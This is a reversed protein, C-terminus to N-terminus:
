WPCPCSIPIMRAEYVLKVHRRFNPTGKFSMDCSLCVYKGLDHDEAPDDLAGAMMGGGDGDAEDGQSGGQGSGQLYGGGSGLPGM